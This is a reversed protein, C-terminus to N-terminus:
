VTVGIVSALIIHKKNVKPKKQKQGENSGTRDAFWLLPENDMRIASSLIIGPTHASFIEFSVNLM